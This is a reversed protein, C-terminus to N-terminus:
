FATWTVRKLLNQLGVGKFCNMNASISSWLFDDNKEMNLTKIGKSVYKLKLTIYRARWFYPKWETELITTSLSCIGGAMNRVIVHSTVKQTDQMLLDMPM